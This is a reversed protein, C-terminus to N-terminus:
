DVLWPAKKGDKEHKCGSGGNMSCIPDGHAGCWSCEPCTCDEADKECIKCICPADFAPDHLPYGGVNDYTGM